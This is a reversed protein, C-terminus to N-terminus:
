RNQTGSPCGLKSSVSPQETKRVFVHEPAGLGLAWVPHDVIHAAMDGLAGAGYDWFGRWKFPAIESSYPADPAPGLWVDWNMSSPVKEAAPRM